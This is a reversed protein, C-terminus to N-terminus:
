ARAREDFKRLMVRVSEAWTGRCDEAAQLAVHAVHALHLLAFAPDPDDAVSERLRALASISAPDKLREVLRFRQRLYRRQARM